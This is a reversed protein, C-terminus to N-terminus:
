KYLSIEITGFAKEQELNVKQQTDLHLLPIFTYIKEQKDTSHEILEDFTIRDKENLFQRVKDYVDKILQTIDVKKEPISVTTLATDERIRKVTRRIDVELAEELAQMLDNLTLQRKRPQPTKILLQPIQENAYPNDETYEGDDAFINEDQPFLQSDFNAIHESLFRDSKLKLLFALAFVIKGSIFFNHEKMMELAKRYRNALVSIDVNWPDLEETKMLDQIITQWTIEDRKTLLEYLKDQM